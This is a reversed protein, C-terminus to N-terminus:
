LQSKTNFKGLYMEALQANVTDTNDVLYCKYVVYFVLAEEYRNKIPIEETDSAPLEVADVLEGKVYRTEPRIANLAYVGEQLADRMEESSWRYKEETDLLIRRAKTEVTKITM